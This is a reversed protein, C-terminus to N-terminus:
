AIKKAVVVFRGNNKTYECTSLTLLKDGYAATAGTNYLALEKCRSVYENFEEETGGAFTHYDFDSDATTRFVAIIEYTGFARLTDFRILKHSEYFAPDSYNELDSFMTGNKMNHGYIVVNESDDVDCHEAAYPVGYYSYQKDFGRRLYYNPTDPTQMVPYDIVTGGIKIWGVLDANQALISAYCEAPTPNQEDETETLEVLEEFQGASKQAEYFHLGIMVASLVFIAALLGMLAWYILRSCGRKNAWPAKSFNGSKNFLHKIKQFLNKFFNM